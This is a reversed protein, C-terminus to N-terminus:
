KWENKQLPHVRPHMSFSTALGVLEYPRGWMSPAVANDNRFHQRNHMTFDPLERQVCCLTRLESRVCTGHVRAPMRRSVVMGRLAACPPCRVSTAM